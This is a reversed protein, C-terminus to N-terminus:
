RKRCARNNGREGSCTKDSPCDADDECPKLCILSQDSTSSRVCQLGTECDGGVRGEDECSEGEAAASCAALVVLLASLRAINRFGLLTGWPIMTLFRMASM